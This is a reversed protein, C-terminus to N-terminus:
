RVCTIPSPYAFNNHINLNFSNVINVAQCPVHGGRNNNIISNYAVEINQTNWLVIGGHFSNEIHNSSILVNHAGQVVDIAWENAWSFTNGWIAVDHSPNGNSSAVYIGSRYFDNDYIKVNNTAYMAVGGDGEHSSTRAKGNIENRAIWIANSRDVWIHPAVHLAPHFNGGFFSNWLYVHFTEVIGIPIASINNIAINDITSWRTRMLLVAYSAHGSGDISLNHLGIGSTDPETTFIRDPNTGLRKILVDSRESGMGRVVVENKLVLKGSVFYTGSNLCVSGRGLASVQDIATQIEADSTPSGASITIVCPPINGLASKSLSIIALSFLLITFYKM